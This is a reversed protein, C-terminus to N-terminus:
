QPRKFEFRLVMASPVPQQTNSRAPNFKWRRAADLSSKVMSQPTWAATPLPEANVVRGREDISIKIEVIKTQLGTRILEPPYSPTVSSAISPPSYVPPASPTASQRALSPVPQLTSTTQPEQVPRPPAPLPVALQTLERLAWGAPDTNFRPAPPENLPVEAAKTQADHEGEPLIFPKNPRRQPINSVAAANPTPTAPVERHGSTQVRPAGVKPLIVIVSEPTTDQPGLVTLEMQIQDATPVYLISGTRVQAPDLIIKRSRGDEDISLVGSTATRIAASERNWTLKLDGNQREAQLGLPMRSGTVPASSVVSPSSNVPRLKQSFLRSGFVGALSLTVVVVALFSWWLVTLARTPRRQAAHRDDSLRADVRPPKPPPKEQTSRIKQREAIALVSRDFPFELFPFEGVMRGDDWFFFAATAPGSDGPQILLFVQHPNPFVVQALAVDDENLRLAANRHIRYYGVPGSIASPPIATSVDSISPRELSPIPTFDDIETTQGAAGGWLLGQEGSSGDPHDFQKQMREVVDLALRVQVPSGPFSWTYHSPSEFELRQAVALTQGM